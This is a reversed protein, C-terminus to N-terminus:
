RRGAHWGFAYDIGHRQCARRFANPTIGLYGAADQVTKCALIAEKLTKACNLNPRATPAQEPEGLDGGGTRSTEGHNVASREGDWIWISKDPVLGREKCWAVHGASDSTHGALIGYPGMDSELFQRASEKQQQEKSLATDKTYNHWASCRPRDFEKCALAIVAACLRRRGAAADAKQRKM